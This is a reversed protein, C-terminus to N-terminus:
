SEIGKRTSTKPNTRPPTPGPQLLAATADDHRKWRPWRVCDPDQHEHVRVKELLLDLGDGMWALAEDWTGIGLLDAFRSAGDTLAAARVLRDLAVTGTLAHWAADPRSGAVWYGGEQNRYGRQVTIWKETLAVRERSGYAAAKVESQLAPEMADGRLDTVVEVPRDSWDIVVTADSLVLYDLRDGTPRLLAVTACPTGPDALDCRGGHEARTADIAEGLVDTLARGAALASSRLLNSALRRVYWPTGHECGTGLTPPSTLGDLVVLLDPCAVVFDENAREGGAVSLTQMWM